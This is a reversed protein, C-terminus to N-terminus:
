RTPSAPRDHDRLDDRGPRRHGVVQRRARGAGDRRPGPVRARRPRRDAGHPQRALRAAGDGADARHAPRPLPVLALPRRDRDLRPARDDAARGGAAGARRRPALRPPPVAARGAAGARRPLRGPARRGRPRAAAFTEASRREADAFAGAAAGEMSHVLYYAVEAGALAEELGAGTAVDGLVLEDPLAGRSRSGSARAPSAASRTATASCARRRPRRRRLRLRRHRPDAHSM